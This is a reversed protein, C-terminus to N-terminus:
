AVQQMSSDIAGALEDKNSEKQEDIEEWKDNELDRMNDKNQSIMEEIQKTLNEKEELVENKQLEHDRAMMEAKESQDFYIGEIIM